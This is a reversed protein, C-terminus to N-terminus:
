SIWTKVGTLRWGDGDPEARTGLAAVDTGADPESLAFGAIAEGAALPALWDTEMLPRGGLGQVALATEAETCTRALGERILCLEMASADRRLVRGLLGHAALAKVLPRNVRGSGDALPALVERGLAAAEDLVGRQVDTLHRLTGKM